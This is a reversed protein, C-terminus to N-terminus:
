FFSEFMEKIETPGEDIKTILALIDGTYTYCYYAGEAYNPDETRLWLTRARQEDQNFDFISSGYRTYDLGAMQAVTPLLDCHSVPANTVPSEEHTEGPIKVFYIVQLDEKACGGHDATIIITADDYVGLEKLQELYADLITMCGRATEEVSTKERYNGNEDTNFEHTGILHQVIFYNSSKDAKLGQEKLKAYFDSNTQLIGAGLDEVILSYESVNTYFQQKLIDPAMRYCSMKVLTKILLGTDVRVEQPENTVNSIKDRLISCGNASTLVNSDTTYVNAKYNKDRLEQYFDVTSENEWISRCWENISVAPDVECGTLMHALSPFTGYYTCDANSYYTFDHLCDAGDPYVELMQQLYLSSFYDLVFVIINKDASVTYQDEGSLRDSGQSRKYAEQPATALLSVLAIVQICILFSALYLVLKKWIEKKLMVLAIVIAIVAIWIVVNGIWRSTQVQYGNPNVGLLDLNKNLFMIQLYGALSIGFIVSLVISYIREPIISLVATLLLVGILFLIAMYGAFEGYLFEFETINAFFIEAPGFVVLMFMFLFVVPFAFKVKRFINEKIM